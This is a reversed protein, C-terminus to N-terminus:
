VYIWVGLVLFIASICLTISGIFFQTGLSLFRKVPSLIYRDRYCQKCRQEQGKNHKAMRRTRGEKKKRTTMATMNENSSAQRQYYKM